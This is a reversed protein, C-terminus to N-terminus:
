FLKEATTSVVSLNLGSAFNIPIYKLKLCRWRLKGIRPSEDLNFHYPSRPYPLQM